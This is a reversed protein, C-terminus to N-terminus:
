INYCRLDFYIMQSLVSVFIPPVLFLNLHTGTGTGTGFIFHFIINALIGHVFSIGM